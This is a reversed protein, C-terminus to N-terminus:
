GRFLPYRPLFSPAIVYGYEDEHVVWNPSDITGARIEGTRTSIYIVAEAAQDNEIKKWQCADEMAEVKFRAEDNAANVKSVEKLEGPAKHTLVMIWSGDAEQIQVRENEREINLWEHDGDDYDVRHRRKRKHYDSLVGEYWLEQATWYVRVRYGLLSKEKAHAEAPEDYTIIETIPNIWYPKNMRTDHKLVWKVDADPDEPDDSNSASDRQNEIVYAQYRLRSAAVSERREIYHRDLVYAAIVNLRMDRWYLIRAGRFIKQVITAAYNLMAKEIRMKNVRERGKFARYSRQLLLTMKWTKNMAKQLEVGSLKSLYKNLTDRYWSQMKRSARDELKDKRMKEFRRRLLERYANYRRALMQMILISNFEDLDRRNCVERWAEVKKYAIFRRANAQFRVAVCAEAERARINYMDRMAQSVLPNHVRAHHGRVVKQITLAQPTHALFYQWEAWLIGFKTRGGIGRWLRQITIAGCEAKKLQWTRYFGMRM